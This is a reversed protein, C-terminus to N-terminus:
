EGPFNQQIYKEKTMEPDDSIMQLEKESLLLTMLINNIIVFTKDGNENNDAQYFRQAEDILNLLQQNELIELIEPANEGALPLLVRQVLETLIQDSTNSSERIESQLKAIFARKQEVPVYTSAHMEAVEETLRVAQERLERLHQYHISSEDVDWNGVVEFIATGLTEQIAPTEEHNARRYAQQNVMETIRRTDGNFEEVLKTFSKAAQDAGFLDQLVGYIASPAIQIKPIYDSGSGGKDVGFPNEEATVGTIVAGYQGLTVTATFGGFQNNIAGLFAERKSEPIKYTHVLGELGTLTSKFIGYALRDMPDDFNLVTEPKTKLDEAQRSLLKDYKPYQVMFLKLRTLLIIAEPQEWFEQTKRDFTTACADSCRVVSSIMNTHLGFENETEIRFDPNAISHKMVTDHMVKFTGKDLLSEWHDQNSKLFYAGILPHDSMADFSNDSLGTTYGIDHVMHTLHEVFKDKDNFHERKMKGVLGDAMEINHHVHKSGHDSGTFCSKDYHEQYAIIRTLDRALIYCQELTKVQRDDPTGWELKQYNDIIFEIESQIYQKQHDTLGIDYSEVEERILRKIDETSEIGDPIADDVKLLIRIDHPIIAPDYFGEVVRTEMQQNYAEQTAIEEAKVQLIKYHYEASTDRDKELILQYDRLDQFLEFEEEKGAPATEQGTFKRELENLRQDPNPVDKVKEKLRQKEEFTAKWEQVDSRREHEAMLEANRQRVYNGRLTVDGYTKGFARRKTNDFEVTGRLTTDDWDIGHDSIIMNLLHMHYRDATTPPDNLAKLDDVTIKRGERKVLQMLQQYTHENINPAPARHATRRAELDEEVDSGMSSVPDHRGSSESHSLKRTFASHAALARNKSHLLRVSEKFMSILSAPEDTTNLTDLVYTALKHMDELAKPTHAQDLERELQTFFNYAWEASSEYPNTDSMSYTVQGGSRNINIFVNHITKYKDVKQTFDHLNNTDVSM